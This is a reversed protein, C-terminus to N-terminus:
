RGMHRALAEPELARAAYREAQPAYLEWLRRLDNLPDTAADVRLDAYPFPADRAIQMSASVLPNDEGGAALGADLAALLRIPLPGSATEFAAVMAGPIADNRLINGIAVCDVGAVGGMPPKIRSGHFHGSAGTADLVAVQRWAREATSAELARAVDPAAIGEALLALGRPGLRPDTWFQTLVVGVGARTFLCRSGVAPSSTTVVGGLMGTTACRAALSFTM